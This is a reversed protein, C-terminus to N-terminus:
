WLDTCRETGFFVAFSRAGRINCRDTFRVVKSHLVMWYVTGSQTGFGVDSGHDLNAGSSATLVGSKYLLLFRLFQTFNNWFDGYVSAHSGACHSGSVLPKYFFTRM